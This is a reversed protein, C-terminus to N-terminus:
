SAPVPASASKGKQKAEEKQAKKREGKHAYDGVQKGRLGEKTVTQVQKRRKKTLEHKEMMTMNELRTLVKGSSKLRQPPFQPMLKHATNVDDEACPVNRWQPIAM